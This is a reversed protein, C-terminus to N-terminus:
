GVKEVDISGQVMFTTVFQLVQAKDWTARSSYLDKWVCWCGLCGSAALGPILFMLQQSIGWHMVCWVGNARYSHVGGGWRCRYLKGRAGAQSPWNRLRPSTDLPETPSQVMTLLDPLFTFCVPPLFPDSFGLSEPRVAAMAILWWLLPSPQLQHYRSLLIHIGLLLLMRRGWARWSASPHQKSVSWAWGFCFWSFRVATKLIGGTGMSEWAWSLSWKEM